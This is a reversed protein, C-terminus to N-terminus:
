WCHVLDHECCLEVLRSHSVPGIGAAVASLAIGRAALDPELAYLRRGAAASIVALALRSGERCAYVAQETLVVSDGADLREFCATLGPGDPPLRNVLHLVAM